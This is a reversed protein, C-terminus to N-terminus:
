RSTSAEHKVERMSKQWNYFGFFAILTFIFYEISLFKVGKVFYIYTCIIDVLIWLIWAEVKKQILLYTAVISLMTTCSDIYPFASPLSFLKPLINHLNSAFFGLISSSLIVIVALVMWESIKISSVKLEMKYNKEEKRPRRWNWWGLLNTIFFFVQLFLDPYLQIQYFLIGMLVVSILGIGWNSIHEKASLWVAILGTIVAFFELYSM